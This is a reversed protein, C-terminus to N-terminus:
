GDVVVFEHTFARPDRVYPRVEVATVRQATFAGVPALQLNREIAEVVGDPSWGVALVGRGLRGIAQHHFSNVDVRSEGLTHAALSATALVHRPM